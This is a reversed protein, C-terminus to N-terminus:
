DAEDGLLKSPARKRSRKPKEELEPPPEFHVDEPGVFHKANNSRTVILEAAEHYGVTICCDEDLEAEGWIYIDWEDGRERCFRQANNRDRTNVVREEGNRDLIMEQTGRIWAYVAGPQAATANRGDHCVLCKLRYTGAKSPNTKALMDLQEIVAQGGRERHQFVDFLDLTGHEKIAETLQRLAERKTLAPTAQRQIQVWDLKPITM